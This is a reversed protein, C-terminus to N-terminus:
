AGSSAPTVSSPGAAATALTHTAGFTQETHTGKRIVIVVRWYYTTSPMLGTVQREVATLRGALAVPTTTSVADNFHASPSYEFLWRAGIRERYVVGNLDASSDTIATADGTGALTPSALAPEAVGLGVALGAILAILGRQM